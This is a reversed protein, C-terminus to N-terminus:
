RSTCLKGRGSPPTSTNRKLRMGRVHRVLMEARNQKRVKYIGGSSVISAMCVHKKVVYGGIRTHRKVIMDM